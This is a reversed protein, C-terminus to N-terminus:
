ERKGADGGAAESRGGIQSSPPQGGTKEPRNKEFGSRSFTSLFLKKKQVRFEDKISRVNLYALFVSWLMLLFCIGWFLFSTGPGVGAKLFFGGLLVMLVVVILVVSGLTQRQRRTAASPALIVSLLKTLFHQV